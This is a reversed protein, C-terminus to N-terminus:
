NKGQDITKGTLRFLGHEKVGIMAGISNSGKPRLMVKEDRFIVKFGKLKIVSISFINYRLELVWLVHQVRLLGGSEMRLPVVGSGRFVKQSKEGVEMHLKSKWENLTEFVEHSSTMSQRDVIWTGPM